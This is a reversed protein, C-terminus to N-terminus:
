RDLLQDSFEGLERPDAPLRRLPEGKMEELLRRFLGPPESRCEDRDGLSDARAFRAAVQGLLLGAANALVRPPIGAHDAHYFLRRRNSYHIAGGVKSPMIM